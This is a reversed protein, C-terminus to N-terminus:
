RYKNIADALPRPQNAEWSEFTFDSKEVPERSFREITSYWAEWDQKVPCVGPFPDYAFTPHYSVITPINAFSFEPLRTIAGFGFYQPIIVARVQELLIDLENQNIWGRIEVGQIHEGEELLDETGKGGVIVNVGAPLGMERAQNLFWVFSAKTTHHITSGMMLFLNSSIDGLTRKERVDTLRRRIDGVPIYPYYSTPMGLGQLLSTEVKSICLRSSCESMFQLENTLSTIYLIKSSSNGFSLSHTDLSEINQPCIITPIDRELNVDLINRQNPHDLICLAPGNITSLIEEYSQSTVLPFDVVQKYIQSLLYELLRHISGRNKIWNLLIQSRLILEKYYYGLRTNKSSQRDASTGQTAQLSILNKEGVIELTDYWIQYTRHFGGHGIPSIQYRSVFIIERM